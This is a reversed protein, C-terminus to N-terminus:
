GSDKMNEVMRGDLSAWEMVNIKTLIGMINKEMLGGFNAKVM